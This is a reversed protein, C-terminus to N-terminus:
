ISTLSSDSHGWQFICWDRLNCTIRHPLYWVKGHIIHEWTGHVGANKAWVKLFFM